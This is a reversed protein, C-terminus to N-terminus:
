EYNKSHNALSSIAWERICGYLAFENQANDVPKEEARKIERLITQMTPLIDDPSCPPSKQKNIEIEQREREDVETTYVEFLRNKNIGEAGHVLKNRVDYWFSLRHWGDIAPVADDATDGYRFSHLGAIYTQRKYRNGLSLKKGLSQQDKPLYKQIAAVLSATGKRQAAHARIAEISVESGNKKRKVYQWGGLAKIMAIQTAEYFAGLFFLFNSVQEQEFHIRCQAYLNELANFRHSFQTLQESSRALEKAAETDLNMRAVSMKLGKIVQSLRVKYRPLDDEADIELSQLTALWDALLVAAGDFDWRNLLLAAAQHKQNQQYRWYSVRYCDSPKGALIDAVVPKPSVFIQAKTNSALAQMKLAQQMQHTGGKVSLYITEDPEFGQFLEYFYGHLRDEDVASFDITRKVLSLKQGSDEFLSPEERQLWAKILEFAHVTDTPHGCKETEPQDTLVLHAKVPTHSNLVSHIVGRIRGVVIRRHWTDPDQQYASLLAKTVDRFRAKPHLNLQQEFFQSLHTRRNHWFAGEVTEVDPEVLNPESRDFGIPLFYDGVKVAIDSTGINAVLITM